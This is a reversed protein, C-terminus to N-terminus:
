REAGRTWSYARERRIRLREREVEEKAAANSYASTDDEKVLCVERSRGGGKKKDKQWKYPRVQLRM